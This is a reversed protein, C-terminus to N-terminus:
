RRSFHYASIAGIIPLLLGQFGLAVAPFYLVMAGLAAGILVIPLVGFFSRKEGTLYFECGLGVGTVVLGVIGAFAIPVMEGRMAVSNIIGFAFFWAAIAQLVRVIIVTLTQKNM